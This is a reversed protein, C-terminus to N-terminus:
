TCVDLCICLFVFVPMCLSVHLHVCVCVCRQMSLAIYGHGQLNHTLLQECHLIHSLMYFCPQSDHTLTLTVSSADKKAKTHLPHNLVFCPKNWLWLLAQDTVKLISVPTSMVIIHWSVYLYCLGAGFGLGCLLVVKRKYQRHLCWGVCPMIESPCRQARCNLQTPQLLIVSLILSDSPPFYAQHYCRPLFYSSSM